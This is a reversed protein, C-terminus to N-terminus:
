LGLAESIINGLWGGVIFCASCVVFSIIFIGM